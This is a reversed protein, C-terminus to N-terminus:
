VLWFKINKFTTDNSVDYVILVGHAGRYYSSTIVRFREQGATDWINLSIYKDDIKIQKFKFDVGITMNHQESFTNDVYQLLLSSKGIGSEGIIIIKYAKTM